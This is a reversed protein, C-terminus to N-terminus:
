EIKEWFQRKNPINPLVLQGQYFTFSYSREDGNGFGLTLTKGESRWRGTSKPDRKTATVMWTEAVGDPHLVLHTDQPKEFVIKTNRWHGILANAPEQGEQALAISGPSMAGASFVISGCILFLARRRLSGLFSLASVLISDRLVAVKCTAAYLCTPM